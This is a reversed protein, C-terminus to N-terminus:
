ARVELTVAWAPTDDGVFEASKEVLDLECFNGRKVLQYHEEDDGKVIFPFQALFM